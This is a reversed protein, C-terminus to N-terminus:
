YLEDFSLMNKLIYVLLIFISTILLLIINLNKIKKFIKFIGNGLILFLGIMSSIFFRFYRLLNDWFSFIM